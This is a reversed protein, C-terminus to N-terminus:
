NRGFNPFFNIYLYLINYKSYINYIIDLKLSYYINVLYINIYKINIYKIYIYKMNTYTNNMYTNNMYTNNM